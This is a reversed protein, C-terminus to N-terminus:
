GASSARRARAATRGAPPEALLAAVRQRTVGFLAGIAEQSMGGTHLVRAEARRFRSGAAALEELVDSLMEVVLPRHEATVLESYPRGEARAAQLAATRRQVAQLLEQAREVALSLEGLAVDTQKSVGAGYDAIAM